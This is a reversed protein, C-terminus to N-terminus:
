DADVRALSYCGASVTNSLALAGDRWKHAMLAIFLQGEGRALLAAAEQVFVTRQERDDPKLHTPTKLLKAPFFPVYLERHGGRAPLTTGMYLEVVFGCTADNECILRGLCDGIMSTAFRPETVDLESQSADGHLYVCRVSVHELRKDPLPQTFTL